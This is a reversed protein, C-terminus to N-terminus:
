DSAAEETRDIFFQSLSATGLDYKKITDSSFECIETLQASFDYIHNNLQKNPTFSINSLHVIMPGEDYSRFIKPKGNTLFEEAKQRLIKEIAQPKYNNLNQLNNDSSLFLSGDDEYWIDNTFQYIASLEESNSCVLRENSYYDLYLIGSINFQKYKTEGNKRIIPYKGGLTNTIAEQTVYKLNSISPNFKIIIMTDKDSLYMNSFVTEHKEKNQDLIDSVGNIIANETANLIGYEYFKGGEISADIWQLGNMKGVKTWLYTNKERRVVAGNINEKNTLKVIGLSPLITGTLSSNDPISWNSISFTKNIVKIYGDTTEVVLDGTISIQNIFFIKMPIEFSNGNCTGYSVLGGASFYCNKFFVNNEQSSGNLKLDDFPNLTTIINIEFDSVRKILSAQSWAGNDENKIQVQYFQNLTLNLISNPISIYYENTDDNKIVSLPGGSAINNGSVSSKTPDIVKYYVNNPTSNYPMTFYIKAIDVFAPQISRVRPTYLSTSM